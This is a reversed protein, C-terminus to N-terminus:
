KQWRILSCICFVDSFPLAEEAAFGSCSLTLAPLSMGRLSQFIALPLPDQWLTSSKIELVRMLSSAEVLQGRVAMYADYCAYTYMHTRTHTCM